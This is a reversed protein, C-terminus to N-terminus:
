LSSPITAVKIGKGKYSGLLFWQSGILEITAVEGSTFLCVGGKPIGKGSVWVDRTLTVQRKM